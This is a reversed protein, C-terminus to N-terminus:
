SRICSPAYTVKNRGCANGFTVSGSVMALLVRRKEGVRDDIVYSLFSDDNVM